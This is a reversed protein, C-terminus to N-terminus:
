LAGTEKQQPEAFAIFKQVMPRTPVVGTVIDTVSVWRSEMTSGDVEVVVPVREETPVRAAFVMRVAHLDTKEESDVWATEGMVTAHLGTEEFVERVVADRPHEGYEVCGGPLTWCEDPSVSPALRSLLIEGNSNPILAYAAIRQKM